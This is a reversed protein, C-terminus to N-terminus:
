SNDFAIFHNPLHLLFPEPQHFANCLHLTLFLVIQLGVPPVIRLLTEKLTIFIFFPNPMGIASLLSQTM